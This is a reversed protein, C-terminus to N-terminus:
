NQASALTVVYREVLLREDSSLNAREQMETLHAPWEAARVDRPAVALHCSACRAVYLSRGRRLQELSAEASAEPWRTQAWAANAATVPPAMASGCGAVVWLSLLAARM